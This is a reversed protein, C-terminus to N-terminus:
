KWDQINNVQAILTDSGLSKGNVGNGSKGSGIGGVANIVAIRPGGRVEKLALGTLIRNGKRMKKLYLGAPFFKGQNSQEKRKQTKAKQEIDSQEKRLSASYREILVSLVENIRSNTTMCRENMEATMNNINLNIFANDNDNGVLSAGSIQLEIKRMDNNGLFLNKSFIMKMRSIFEIKKLTDTSNDRKAVPNAIISMLQKFDVQHKEEDEKMFVEVLKDKDDIDKQLISKVVDPIDSADRSKRRPNDIFENELSYDKSYDVVTKESETSEAKSTGYSARVMDEVQDLYKM